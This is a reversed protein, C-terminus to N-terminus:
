SLEIFMSKHNSIQIELNIGLVLMDIFCDLFYRAFLLSLYMQGYSRALFSDTLIGPVEYSQCANPLSHNM